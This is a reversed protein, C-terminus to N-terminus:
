YSFIEHDPFCYRKDKNLRDLADIDEQSLTFDLSEFNEQLHKKSSAKPIVAIGKQTLWRLIVQSGQKQYKAGIQDFLPEDGLLAGKGFPRYSILKIQHKKCYEFLEKQYLYPHFEVQDADPTFGAKRLDELFHINYNSVGANRIKGQEKLRHLAAFVEELPLSRDPWHILYLDLYETDLEKLTEECAKGVSEEVKRPDLEDELAIKSTLFLEERDFGKIGKAVAKHNEYAHATDIHRYGIELALKVIKTCQSGRLEWTGLGILPLEM